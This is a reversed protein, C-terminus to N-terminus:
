RRVWLRHDMLSTHVLGILFLGVNSLEPVGYIRITHGGGIIANSGMPELHFSDITMTLGTIQLKSIDPVYKRFTVIDCCEPWAGSQLQDLTRSFSSSQVRINVGADPRSLAEAIPEVTAPMADFTM